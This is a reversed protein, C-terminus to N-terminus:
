KQKLEKTIPVTKHFFFNAMHQNLAFQMMMSFCFWDLKVLKWPQKKNTHGPTWIFFDGDNQHFDGFKEGSYIDVDFSKYVPSNPGFIRQFNGFHHFIALDPWVAKQENTKSTM